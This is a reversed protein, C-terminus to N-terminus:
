QPVLVQVRPRCRQAVGGARKQSSNKQFLTEHDIQGPQSQVTIRRIEAEQTTLIVPTLRAKLHKKRFFKLVQKVTPVARPHLIPCHSSIVPLHIKFKGKKM